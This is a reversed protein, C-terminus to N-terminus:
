EASATLETLLAVFEDREDASLVAYARAASPLTAAALAERDVGLETPEPLDGTWGFMAALKRGAVSVVADRGSVGALALAAFHLAARHERLVHLWFLSRQKDSGTPEPYARWAAFLPMGETAAALAVRQALEALRAHDGDPLHADAWATAAALYLPTAESIPRIARAADLQSSVFESGFIVFASEVTENSVDGMAGARGAAYFDFGSYGHQAAAVFMDAHMMWRSGLGNIPSDTKAAIEEPTM